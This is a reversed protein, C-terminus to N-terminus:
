RRLDTDSQTGLYIAIVNIGLSTGLRLNVAYMTQVFVLNFFHFM